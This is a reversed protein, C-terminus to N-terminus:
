KNETLLYLMELIEVTVDPYEESVGDKILQAIEDIDTEGAEIIV